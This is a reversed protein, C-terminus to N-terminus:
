LLAALNSSIVLTAAFSLNKTAGADKSASEAAPPVACIHRRSPLVFPGGRAGLKVDM